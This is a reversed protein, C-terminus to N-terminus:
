NKRKKKLCEELKVHDSIRELEMANLDCINRVAQSNKM